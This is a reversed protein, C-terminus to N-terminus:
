QATAKAAHQQRLAESVIWAILLAGLGWAMLGYLFPHYTGTTYWQSTLYLATSLCLMAIGPWRSAGLCLVIVMIWYYSAAPTLAFMALIGYTAAQDIRARWSAFGMLGLMALSALARALRHEELTRAVEKRARRGSPESLNDILYAPGSLFLTDLGVQNTGWSERHIEIDHAFETWASFGRGTMSGGVLGICLMVAVGAAIEFPWRPREGALWAKVALLGPGALFLVPFVRVVAAFGLCAGAAVFRERKMLCIGVVSAVLWDLRLLSGIYLYRWGFGLGAIAIALCAAQAGFTRFVMVFMAATLVIDLSGLFGLAAPTSGVHTTFLRAFFTWAPTPNYGHDDRISRFFRPPTTALYNDHDEVFAAWRADDFRSRVEQIFPEHEEVGVMENSVLDRVQEVPTHSEPSSESQALVSAAYLGDYGLEPFYKAGLQYHYLEWRNAFGDSWQHYMLGFNFWGAVGVVGALAYALMQHRRFPVFRVALLALLVVCSVIIRFEADSLRITM